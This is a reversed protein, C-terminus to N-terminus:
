SNFNRQWECGEADGVLTLGERKCFRKAQKLANAYNRANVEIKTYFWERGSVEFVYTYISWGSEHTRPPKEGTAGHGEGYYGYAARSELM